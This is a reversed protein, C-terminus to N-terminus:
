RARRRPRRQAQPVKTAKTKRAARTAKTAKTASAASTASIARPASQRRAGNMLIDVVEELMADSVPENKMELRAYLVGWLMDLLLVLDIDRSVEGRAIAAEVLVRVEKSQRANLQKAIEALEPEPHQLLRLRMLSKGEVSQTFVRFQKGLRLMDSRLDGLTPGVPFSDFVSGLAARLLDVKTEWKRYVTTKNVGARRAVGEISMGGYDSLALEQIAARLIQQERVLEQVRRGSAPEEKM